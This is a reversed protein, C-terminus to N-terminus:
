APLMECYSTPVVWNFDCSVYSPWMRSLPLRLLSRLYWRGCALPSESTSIISKTTMHNEFSALPVKGAMWQVQQWASQSTVDSNWLHQFMRWSLGSVSGVVLRTAKDLRPHPDSSGIVYHGELSEFAPSLLSARAHGPLTQCSPHLWRWIWSTHRKPMQLMKSISSNM